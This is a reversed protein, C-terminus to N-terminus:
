VAQTTIQLRQRAETDVQRQVRFKRLDFPLVVENGKAVHGEGPRFGPDESRCFVIAHVGFEISALPDTKQALFKRRIAKLQAHAFEVGGRQLLRSGPCESWACRAQHEPASEVADVVMRLVAM